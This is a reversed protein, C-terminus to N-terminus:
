EHLKGVEIEIENEFNSGGRNQTAKIYWFTVNTFGRRDHRTKMKCKQAIKDNDPIQIAIGIIETDLGIGILTRDSPVGIVAIVGDFHDCEIELSM